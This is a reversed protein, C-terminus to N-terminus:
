KELKAIEARFEALVKKANKLGKAEADAAWKAELPNTREKVAKVFGADAKVFAVGAAQMSATGLRDAKEWGRGFMSAAAEGSISDVIKKEDASLKDYKGQNMMFVFSTNYLGGPFTTAHRIVKDIKFSAASEAPFLTGDMVGNSLLEYSEPAPKLTVNMNLAKAIENVMGGGVRFKLGELDAAATIPRKTNLVVGPGHTFFTLVKVGEHGAALAPYKQAIRQFAVSVPEAFNGLFPLEAMQTAVFRGPTYGHVTYSIDALGNRVADLTGPPSAVARPLINCKMKGASKEELLDCWAKQTMSLSHAPPVWSSVTFVTQASAAPAAFALAAGATALAVPRCRFASAIRMM